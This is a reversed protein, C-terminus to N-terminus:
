LTLYKDRYRITLLANEGFSSGNFVISNTSGQPIPFIEGTFNSYFNTSPLLTVQDGLTTNKVQVTQGDIITGSIQFSKGTTTNQVTANVILGSIEFVPISDVDGNNTISISAGSGGIPMPVPTPVPMGGTFGPTLTFTQETQDLFLSDEVLLEVFFSGADVKGGVERFKPTTYVKALATKVVGDWRRIELLKAQPTKAFALILDRKKAFYDTPDAGFLTSEFRILRMDNFADWYNGGDAGTLPDIAKRLELGDIGELSNVTYVTNEDLTIGNYTIRFLNSM